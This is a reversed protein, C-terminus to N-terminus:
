YDFGPLRCKRCIAVIVQHSLSKREEIEFEAMLEKQDKSSNLAMIWFYAAPILLAVCVVINTGQTLEAIKEDAVFSLAFGAAISVLSSGISASRANDDSVRALRKIDSDTISTGGLTRRRYNVDFFGANQIQTIPDISDTM